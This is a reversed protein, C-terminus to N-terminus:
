GQAEIEARSAVKCLGPVDGYRDKLGNEVLLNVSGYENEVAKDRHLRVINSPVEIQQPTLDRHARDIQNYVHRADILLVKDENDTGIKGRDFFSLTCPLTM